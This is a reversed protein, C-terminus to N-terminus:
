TLVMLADAGFYLESVEIAETRSVVMKSLVQSTGESLPRSEPIWM